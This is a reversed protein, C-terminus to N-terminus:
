EDSVDDDRDLLVEEPGFDEADSDTLDQIPWGSPGASDSRASIETRSVRSQM